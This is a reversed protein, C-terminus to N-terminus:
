PVLQAQAAGARMGRKPRGSQEGSRRGTAGAQSARTRPDEHPRLLRKVMSELHARSLGSPPLSARLSAEDIISNGHLVALAGAHRGFRLSRGLATAPESPIMQEELAALM